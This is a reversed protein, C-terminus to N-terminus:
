IINAAKNLQLHSNSDVLCDCCFNALRLCACTGEITNVIAVIGTFVNVTACVQTYVSAILFPYWNYLKVWLRADVKISLSHPLASQFGKKGKPLVHLIIRGAQLNSYARWTYPMHALQALEHLHWTQLCSYSKNRRNSVCRHTCYTLPTHVNICRTVPIILRCRSSPHSPSIPIPLGKPPTLVTHANWHSILM